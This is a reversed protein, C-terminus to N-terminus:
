EEKYFYAMRDVEQLEVYIDADIGNTWKGDSYQEWTGGIDKILGRAYTIAKIYESFVAVAFGSNDNSLVTWVEKSM